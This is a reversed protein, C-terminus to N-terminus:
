AKTCYRWPSQGACKCGGNCNNSSTNCCASYQNSNSGAMINRMENRNMKGKINELSM